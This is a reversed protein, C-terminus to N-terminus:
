DLRREVAALVTKRNGHRREYDRVKRLEAASLEELRSTIQAATLEDYTSIPFADGLGAARRARDVERRVRDTSQATRDRARKRADGGARRSRGLLAELEALLDETQRRGAGVLSALLEEADARTMRGRAVADDLAEQLRDTTLTVSRTLLERVASIGRVGDDTAAAAKPPQRKRQGSSSTKPQPM